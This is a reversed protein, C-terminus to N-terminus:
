RRRGIIRGTTTSTQDETQRPAVRLTTNEPNGPPSCRSQDTGLCGNRVVWKFPRRSKTTEDQKRTHKRFSSAFGASQIPRHSDALTESTPVAPRIPRSSVLLFGAPPFRTRFSRILQFRLLSLGSPGTFPGRLFSGNRSFEVAHWFDVGSINIGRRDPTHRHILNRQLFVCRPRQAGSPNNRRTTGSEDRTHARNRTLM